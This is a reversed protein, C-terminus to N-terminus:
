LGMLQRLIPFAHPFAELLKLLLPSPGVRPIKVPLPDSWASELGSLDRAKVKVSYSGKKSWTHSENIGQGHVYPGLWDSTTGDGWDYMYYVDDGNPDLTYTSYSYEIGPKGASAGKPQSPKHPPYAGELSQPVFAEGYSGKFGMQFDPKVMTNCEITALEDYTEIVGYYCDAFNLYHNVNCFIPDKTIHHPGTFGILKNSIGGSGSATTYNLYSSSDARWYYNCTVLLDGPKVYPGFTDWPKTPDPGYKVGRAATVNWVQITTSPCLLADFSDFPISGQENGEDDFNIWQGPPVMYFRETNEILSHALIFYQSSVDNYFETIGDGSSDSAYFKVNNQFSTNEQGNDIAGTVQIAGSAVLLTCVLIGVTKKNM